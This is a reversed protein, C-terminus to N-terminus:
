DRYDPTAKHPRFPRRNGVANRGDVNQRLNEDQLDDARLASQSIGIGPAIRDPYRVAIRMGQLEYGNYRRIAEDCHEQKTFNVFACRKNQLVKASYVDGAMSFLNTILSEPVPNNLNGVWVPFLEPLPRGDSSNTKLYYAHNPKSQSQVNPMNYVPGLPKNTLPTKPADYSQAPPAPSSYLPKTNASLVPSVGTVNAVQVPPLHGNLVVPRSYLKSLVELAKNVTGHIILANSSEERTFGYAMLQIIQVRMLEQAAEAYSSDLKLVDMFAKAAEEYRKLGALARGKRFLGKVWGPSISLSLEADALAKEYEQLKEFCFSRNGFLKFETPNYKIADTFYKVAMNYDGSSAFTNGFNALDTSIKVHDEFSPAATDKMKEDKGVKDEHPKGPGSKCEKDPLKKKEARSNELKRKAILAAKSVFSSTMDLEESDDSDKMTDDEDSFEEGSSGIDSDTGKAPAFLKVSSTADGKRQGNVVKSEEGKSQHQDDKKKHKEKEMQKREKQKQKKLRKKEAKAKRESDSEKPQVKGSAAVFPNHASSYHHLPPQYISNSSNTHNGGLRRGHDHFCHHDDTWCDYDDVDLDEDYAIGLLGCKIIRQMHPHNQFMGVVRQMM